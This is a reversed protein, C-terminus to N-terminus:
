GKAGAVLWFIKRRGILEITQTLLTLISMFHLLNVVAESFWNSIVTASFKNGTWFAKFFLLLLKLVRISVVISRALILLADVYLSPGIIVGSFGIYPYGDRIM